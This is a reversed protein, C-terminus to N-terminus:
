RKGDCVLRAAAASSRAQGLTAIMRRARGQRAYAHFEVLRNAVSSLEDRAERFRQDEGALDIYGEVIHLQTEAWVTWSEIDSESLGQFVPEDASQSAIRRAGDPEGEWPSLAAMASGLRDDFEPFREACLENMTM